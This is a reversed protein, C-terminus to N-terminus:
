VLVKHRALDATQTKVSWYNTVQWILLKHGALDTTQPEGSWHNRSSFRIVYFYLLESYRSLCRAKLYFVEFVCSSAFHLLLTRMNFMLYGCTQTKVSWYNTVQWILLKHGALDTTQPEGSWYNIAQWILLKHSALDTTQQKGSWYNTFSCIHRYGKWFHVCFLNRSSFRIVYFYLLESYRSLCRAKLYFVEFVCSSLLKHSALDTTQTKGSWHNTAQWILLKHNALDTTQTKGSWYNKDQCILPKHSALDTTQPKGSWYNTDQWILLKQCAV